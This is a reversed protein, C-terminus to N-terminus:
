YMARVPAREAAQRHRCRDVIAEAKMGSAFGAYGDISLFSQRRRIGHRVECTDTFSSTRSLAMLAADIPDLMMKRDAHRAVM